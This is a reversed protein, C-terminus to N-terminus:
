GKAELGDILSAIAQELQDRDISSFDRDVKIELRGPGATCKVQGARSAIHFTTKSRSKRKPTPSSVPDESAPVGDLVVHNQVAYLRLITMEDVEDRDPKAALDKRLKDIMEPYTKLERALSVGLARPVATPYNLLDGIDELLQAFSRIYSRKSYPASKFLAALADKMRTAETNPDDLYNRTAHAMEAFSLDKRIVNEDVMRRYLGSIDVDGEIILAPIKEWEAAGTDELLTQYANLRRYGQVLEFGHGDPRRMVRIPNSLGIDQISTALDALEEDEGLIRDRVLVTSHVQDLPVMEVVHGAERLAVFEHALADNEERIAEVASKRAKLADANEAIASAMPGRRPASPAPSEVPDDPLDIDFVRRKRSM